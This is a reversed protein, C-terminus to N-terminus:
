VLGHHYRYESQLFGVELPYLPLLLHQLQLRLLHRLLLPHLHLLHHLLSLLLVPLLLAEMVEPVAGSTNLALTQRILSLALPALTLPVVVRGMLQLLHLLHLPLLLHEGALTPTSNQSKQLLSLVTTFDLMMLSAM